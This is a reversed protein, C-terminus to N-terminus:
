FHQHVQNANKKEKCCAGANKEDALFIGVPEYFELKKMRCLNM